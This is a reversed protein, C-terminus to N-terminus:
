KKTRHLDFWETISALRAVRNSPKGSRSLEHNENRFLLLKTEKNLIKLANYFQIAQSAPCRYDELSHLLMLPTEVSPAHKIPSLEWMEEVFDWINQAEYEFRKFSVNAVDTEFTQSLWNSISRQSAAAKFRKTQGVIWNTMYGGYSGGTVMLESEDINPYQELCNDVFLMLDNFPQVAMKERRADAFEDGRGGSGRPNCYIVYYGQHAWYQMEHFYVDGYVTRPGGHIDLIAPYRKEPDFPVPTIVWGDIELNEEIPTAIYEPISVNAKKMYESNFSTIKSVKGDNLEYLEELGGKEQSVFLLKGRHISFDVISASVELFEKIEGNEMCFLKTIFRDTASFYVTNESVQFLSHRGLRTDSNIEDTGVSRDFFISKEIKKEKCDFEVIYPSQGYGLKEGPNSTFYLKNGQCAIDLVYNQSGTDYLTELKDASYDYAFIKHNEDDLGTKEIATFYINKESKSVVFDIPDITDAHLTNMSDAQVQYIYLRNRRGPSIGLGNLSFPLEEIALLDSTEVSGQKTAFQKNQDKFESLSVILRGEALEAVKLVRSDFEKLKRPLDSEESYSLLVSKGNNKYVLFVAAESSGVIEMDNCASHLELEGSLCDRSYLCHRYGDKLIDPFSLNFYCKNGVNEFSSFSKIICFDNIDIM